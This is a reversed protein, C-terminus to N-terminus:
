RRNPYASPPVSPAPFGAPGPSSVRPSCRRSDLCRWFRDAGISRHEEARIWERHSGRPVPQTSTTKSRASATAWARASAPRAAASTAPAIVQTQRQRQAASCKPKAARSARSACATRSKPSPRAGLTSATGPPSSTCSRTSRRRRSPPAGRRVPPPVRAPQFALHEFGRLALPPADPLIQVVAEPLLEGRGRQRGVPEDGRQFRRARAPGAPRLIQSSLHALRDGFHARKGVAERGTPRWSSPRICASARARRTSPVCRVAHAADELARLRHAHGIRREGPVEIADRLFRHVIGELMGRGRSIRMPRSCRSPRQDEFHIVIALGAPFGRRLRRCRGPTIRCRAAIARRRGEFDARGGAPPVRIAQVMGSGTM